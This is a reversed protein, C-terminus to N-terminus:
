QGQAISTGAPAASTADPARRMQFPQSNVIDLILGSWRYDDAAARRLLQRLTPQDYYAVSRGLAYAVLKEIVTSAFEDGQTLVERFSKPGSIKTGDALTSAPDIPAGSETDRWRGIADFNELAFGIPDMRTHCTACVPNARHQQMRERLSTPASRGDNEKLPPVNPPPAPPPTGLLNELVWKGRLVVSTRHAYSTVTLISAQGLLGQRAPDIVAVKRFHSGYVNMIGYHRALQENLYTYDARLLDPLGHDERVQSEFFLQTEKIMADRLNDDFDPFINPDPEMAHLNRVVLWQGVFDNMWRRARQDALLRRVQQALVAPDKLRGRAGLDLLEDDPV